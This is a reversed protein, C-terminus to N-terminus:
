KTNMIHNKIYHKNAELLSEATPLDIYTDLDTYFKVSIELPTPKCRDDRLWRAVVQQLDSMLFPTAAM